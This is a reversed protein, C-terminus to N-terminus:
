NLLVGMDIIVYGSSYPAVEYQQLIIYLHGDKGIYFNEPLKKVTHWNEFIPIGKERTQIEIQRNLEEVTLTPMLKEMDRITLRHGYQDFNYGYAYGHPHAARDPYTSTIIVFSTYPYGPENMGEQWYMRGSTKWNRNAHRIAREYSEVAVDVTANIRARKLLNPDESLPVKAEMEGEKYEVTSFTQNTPQMRSLSPGLTWTLNEASVAGGSLILALSVGLAMHKWNM